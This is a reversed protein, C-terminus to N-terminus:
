EEVEVIVSIHSMRRLIVNARGMSRPLLRKMRPGEDIRLEKIRITHPDVAITGSQNVLNDRASKIVKYLVKAGKHPMFNLHVLVDEVNKKKRVLDAVRRLKKPSIRIYKVKAKAEM